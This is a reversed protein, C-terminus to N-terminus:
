KRKSIKQLRDRYVFSQPDIALAKRYATKAEAYKQQAQLADGLAAYYFAAYYSDRSEQLEAANRFAKEAESYKLQTYLVHGLESQFAPSDAKLLIARRLMNGAEAFQGLRFLTSGLNAIATADDPQLRVAQKFAESAAKYDHEAFLTIGLSFFADEDNPKLQVAKKFVVEAEAYKRQFFLAAGLLGYVWSDNPSLRIAMKLTDEAEAYNRLAYSVRGLAAILYPDGPVLKVASAFADKADSYRYVKYLTDGIAKYAAAEDRSSLQSAIKQAQKFADLAEVFQGHTFKEEGLRYYSDFETEIPNKPINAPRIAFTREPRNPYLYAPEGAGGAIEAGGGGGGGGRMLTPGSPLDKISPGFPLFSIEAQATKTRGELLIKQYEPNDMLEDVTVKKGLVISLLRANQQAITKGEPPLSKCESTVKGDKVRCIPVQGKECTVTGGPPEACKLSSSQSALFAYEGTLFFIAALIVFEKPAPSKM